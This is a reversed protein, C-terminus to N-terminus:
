YLFTYNLTIFHSCFKQTVTGLGFNSPGRVKKEFGYTYAFELQNVCDIHYTGGVNIHNKTTCPSLINFDIQSSPYTPTNYSYGGRVEWCSNLWYNAGIKVASVNKWGLGAGGNTGLNGPKIRSIKNGFVKVDKFFICEYDLAVLLADNIQWSFGVDVKAPIDLRGHQALLGRYKKFKSVFVRSTYAVGAKVNPLIQGLWGIRVGVGGAWDYGHNTLHKPSHSFASFGQLGRARFRHIGIVLSAGIAHNENIARSYTPSITGQLYDIGMIQNLRGNGFVPNDRPYCTNLGSGTVGIALTNCGFSRSAGIQPVFFIDRQSSVLDGPIGPGGTYDYSRPPHFISFGLDVRDQLFSVGAPNTALVLVEQPNAVATGGMGQSRVGIANPFYGILAELDTTLANSVLGLAVAGFLLYRHM